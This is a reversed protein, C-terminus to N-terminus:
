FSNLSKTYPNKDFAALLSPDVRNTFDHETVEKNSVDTPCGINFLNTPESIHTQVNAGYNYKTKRLSDDRLHMNVGSSGLPTNEKQGGSVYGKRDDIDERHTSIDINDYQSTNVISKSAQGPTGKYDPNNLWQTERTYNYEASYDRPADVDNTAIGTYSFLNGEKNTTRAQDPLSQHYGRSSDNAPRIAVINSTEREQEYAVYSDRNLFNNSNIKSKANRIWDQKYTQKNDDDAITFLQNNSNCVNSSKVIRSKGGSHVNNYAPTLNPAIESTESKPTFKINSYNERAKPAKVSGVTTFYRDSSNIYYTDPQNKNVKGTIGRNGVFHKGQTVPASYSVKPNTAVRLDDVDKYSPRVYEEPLPQVKIQSTPLLNTKLNSDVYRDLNILDGTPKTGYINEKQNSFMKLTEQKKTPIDSLGTYNELISTNTNVQTNQTVNSGFFPVMNNHSSNVPQGSLESINSFEEKMVTSLQEGANGLQQGDVKINSFMPGSLIQQQRKELTNDDVPLVSPLITKDSKIPEGNEDCDWKCYTNYLPPIINTKEPNKSKKYNQKAIKREKADIEKSFNSTYINKGSPIENPSINTRPKIKKRPTKGNSNLHYGIVGTLGIILLSLDM